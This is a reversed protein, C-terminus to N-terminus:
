LIYVSRGNSFYSTIIHLLLLPSTDISQFINQLIFFIEKLIRTHIKKSSSRENSIETYFLVLFITQFFDLLSLSVQNAQALCSNTREVIEKIFFGEMHFM